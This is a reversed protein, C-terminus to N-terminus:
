SVDPLNTVFDLLDERSGRPFNTIDDENANILDDTVLYVQLGLQAAILDEQVDNGIMLCHKPDANINQLIERYYNLNPKAFRSNEYTTILAFDEQKIGAWRMREYTAVQPFIPNTALVLEYGKDKLASVIKNALPTPQVSEVVRGFENHYFEEFQTVHNEVNGGFVNLFMEWFKKENTMSGDNAIMVEAGHMVIEVLKQPDYGMNTGKLGLERLYAKIFTEQDMPLLTGDLDFLITKIDKVKKEENWINKIKRSKFM